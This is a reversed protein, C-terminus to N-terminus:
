VRVAFDPSYDSVSTIKVVDGPVPAHIFTNDGLSIGVHYTGGPSGWFVLDGAQAEAVAITAGASEQDITTRGIPRNAAAFASQVLGSCDFTDPGAAGYVYPKGLQSKAADVITTKSETQQILTKQLAEKEKKSENVVQTLQSLHQSVEKQTSDILLKQKIYESHQRHLQELESQSQQLSEQKTNNEIKLPTFFSDSLNLEKQSKDLTATPIISIAAIKKLTEIQSTKEEIDTTLSDMESLVDEQKNVYIQKKELLKAQKETAEQIIKEQAQIAEENSTAAEATKSLFLSSCIFGSIMTTVLLNKYKM